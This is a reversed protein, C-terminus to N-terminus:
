ERTPASADDPADDRVFAYVSREGSVGKLAHRGRDVFALDPNEIFSRTTDSVLIEDPEALALIRAAVHVAVGRVDGPVLHVEGTHLAARIALDLPRLGEAAAAAARVAREPGDFLAVLGDGTTTVERGRFRGLTARMLANHDDLLRAWARDGLQAARATSDVIDTFLITALVRDGSAPSAWGHVGVWEISVAPEDGLVWADHGPPFDFVDDPGFDTESGEDTLVRMRGSIMVGIHHVQCRETGVIPKVHEEWHWGPDLHSRGVVYQGLHVEASRGFPFRQEEDPNRLNKRKIDAVTAITRGGTSDRSPDTSRPAPRHVVARAVPFTVVLPVARM